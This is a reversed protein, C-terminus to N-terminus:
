VWSQLDLHIAIKSETSRTAIAGAVQESDESKRVECLRVVWPPLKLSVTHLTRIDRRTM